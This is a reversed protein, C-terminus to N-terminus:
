VNGGFHFLDLQRFYVGHNYTPQFPIKMNTGDRFILVIAHGAVRGHKGQITRVRMDVLDSLNKNVTHVNGRRTTTIFEITNNNKNSVIEVKTGSTMIASVFLTGMFGMVGVQIFMLGDMGM